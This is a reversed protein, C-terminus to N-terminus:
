PTENFSGELIVHTGSGNYSVVAKEFIRDEPAVWTDNIGVKDRYVVEGSVSKTIFEVYPELADGHVDITIAEFSKIAEMLLPNPGMEVDRRIWPIMTKAVGPASIPASPPLGVAKRVPLVTAAVAAIISTIFTRRNM